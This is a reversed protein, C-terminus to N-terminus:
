RALPGPQDPERHLRGAERSAPASVGAFWSPNEAQKEAILQDLDKDVRDIISDLIDKLKSM